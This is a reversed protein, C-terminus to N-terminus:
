FCAHQHPFSPTGLTGGWLPKQNRLKAQTVLSLVTSESDGCFGFASALNREVFGEWQAFPHSRVFLPGHTNFSLFDEGTPLFTYRFNYGRVLFTVERPGRELEDWIGM